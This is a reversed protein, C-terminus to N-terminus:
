ALLETYYVIAEQATARTKKIAAEPTTASEAWVGGPRGADGLFVTYDTVGKYTHPHVKWKGCSSIVSYHWGCNEWVNPKWGKGLREALKQAALTAAEFAARTCGCGCAPSCYLHGRTVPKWSLEKM